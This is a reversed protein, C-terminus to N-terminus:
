WLHIWVHYSFVFISSVLNFWDFFSFKKKVKKPSCFVLFCLFIIGLRVKKSHNKTLILNPPQESLLISFSNQQVTSSWLKPVAVVWSPPSMLPRTTPQPVTIITTLIAKTPTPPLTTICGRRKHVTLSSGPQLRWEQMCCRWMSELRKREKGVKKEVLSSSFLFHSALTSVFLLLLLVLWDLYLWSCM